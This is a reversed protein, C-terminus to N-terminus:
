IGSMRFRADAKLCGYRKKWGKDYPAGKVETTWVRAVEESQCRSERLGAEELVYHVIEHFIVQEQTITGLTIERIAERPAVLVLAEGNPHVGIAELALPLTSIIVTPADINDCTAETEQELKQCVLEFETPIRTAEQTAVCAAIGLLVLVWTAILKKM